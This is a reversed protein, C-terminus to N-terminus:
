VNRRNRRSVVVLSPITDVLRLEPASRRSLANPDSIHIACTDSWPQFAHPKIIHHFSSMRSALLVSPTSPKGTGIRPERAAGVNVTARRPVSTKKKCGWKLKARPRSNCM